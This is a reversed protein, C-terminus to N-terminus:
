PIRMLSKGIIRAFTAEDIREPITSTIFSLCPYLYIWFLNCRLIPYLSNCKFTEIIHKITYTIPLFHQYYTTLWCVNKQKQNNGTGIEQPFNFNLITIEIVM